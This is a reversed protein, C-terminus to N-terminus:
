KQRHPSCCVAKSLLHVREGWAMVAFFGSAKNSHLQVRMHSATAMISTCCNDGANGQEPALEAHQARVRSGVTCLSHTVSGM